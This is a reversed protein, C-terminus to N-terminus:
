GRKKLGLVRSEVTQEARRIHKDLAPAVSRAIAMNDSDGLESVVLVAHRDTQFYAMRYSNSKLSAVLDGPQPKPARGNADAKAVLISVTKDRYKVVVHAFRREQFICSHADVLQAGAPLAGTSVIENALNAYARDYVRGAENLDIITPGLKHELACERHDGAASETLNTLALLERQDHRWRQIAIFGLAIAILLSAAIGVYAIRSIVVGPRGLAQDRLHTKLDSTFEERMQLDVAQTFQSRLQHRLQRRSALVFRCGACSELHRIVDHNTEILLEDSLYSDAIERFDDCQM